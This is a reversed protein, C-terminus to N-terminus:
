AYAIGGERSEDFRAAVAIFTPPRVRSALPQSYTSKSLRRAPAASAIRTLPFLAPEAAPQRERRISRHAVDVGEFGFRITAPGSPPERGFGLPLVGRRVIEDFPAARYPLPQGIRELSIRAEDRIAIEFVRRWPEVRMAAHAAPRECRPRAHVM